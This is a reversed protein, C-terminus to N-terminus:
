FHSTRSQHVLSIDADTISRRESVFASQDNGSEEGGAEIEGDTTYYNILILDSEVHMLFYRVIENITTEPARQIFLM